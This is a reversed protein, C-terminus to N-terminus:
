NTLMLQRAKLNAQEATPKEAYHKQEFKIPSLFGLREQVRRPSHFGDIYKFLALNAESQTAFTRGYVCDEFPDDHVLVPVGVFEGVVDAGFGVLFCEVQVEALGAVCAFSAGPSVGGSPMIAPCSRARRHDSLTSFETIVAARAQESM